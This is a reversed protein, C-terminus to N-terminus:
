SGGAGGQAHVAGTVPPPTSAFRELKKELQLSGLGAAGRRRRRTWSQPCLRARWGQM